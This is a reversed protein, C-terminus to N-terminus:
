RFAFSLGISAGRASPAIQVRGPVPFERWRDELKLAGAVAGMAAGLLAAGAIDPDSESCEGLMCFDGVAHDVAGTLVVALGAGALAGIAAHAVSLRRGKSVDIRVASDAVVKSAKTTFFPGPRHVVLTDGRVEALKGVVKQFPSTWVRVREGVPWSVPAPTQAGVKAVGLTVIALLMLRHM